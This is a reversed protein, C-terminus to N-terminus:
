TPTLLFQDDDHVDTTNASNCRCVLGNAFAPLFAASACCLVVSRLVSNPAVKTSHSFQTECNQVQGGSSSSSSSSDYVKPSQQRRHASRKPGNSAAKRASCHHLAAAAAAVIRSVFGVVIALSHSQKAAAGASVFMGESHTLLSRVVVM